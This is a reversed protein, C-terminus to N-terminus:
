VTNTEAINLYNRVSYIGCRRRRKGTALSRRTANDRAVNLFDSRRMANVRRDVVSIQRRPGNQNRLFFTHHRSCWFFPGGGGALLIEQFTPLGEIVWAVISLPIWLFLSALTMGFVRHLTSITYTRAELSLLLMRNGLPYAFAAVLVAGLPLLLSVGVVSHRAESFQMLLVGALIMLGYSFTELDFSRHRGRYFFVGVIPGAIVTTQWGGAILWSPGSSAAWTLCTGFVGFGIFSWKLWEGWHLRIERRLTPFEKSPLVLPALLVVTFLYRLIVGWLWANAGQSTVLRRNLVFTTSFFLTSVLAISVARITTARAM